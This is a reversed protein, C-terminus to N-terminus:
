LLEEETTYDRLILNPKAQTSLENFVKPIELQIKKEIVEKELDARVEELRKSTDPPIRGVCKIVVTGEPTGILESLEGPRLKFAAQEMEESGTTYRGRPKIGGGSSALRPRAQQK